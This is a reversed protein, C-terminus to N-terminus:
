FWHFIDSIWSSTCDSGDRVFISTTSLHKPGWHLLLTTPNPPPIVALSNFPPLEELAASNSSSFAVRFSFKDSFVRRSLKSLVTACSELVYEPWDEDVGDEISGSVHMHFIRNDIKTNLRPNRPFLREIGGPYPYSLFNSTHPHWQLFYLALQHM